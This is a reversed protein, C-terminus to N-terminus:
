LTTSLILLGAIIRYIIFIYTTHNRLYKLLFEISLYGVIASSIVAVLISTIGLTSIFQQLEILELLGSAAIAPISLLFSFKAADERKLGCFLAATITTGSRSSGPILAITQATGIILADKWTVNEISKNKKGFKEGFFLIIALVVLSIGIVTLDKTFGGEIFKKFALGIIVVPITGIIIYWGLKANQSGTSSKKLFFFGEKFFSKVIEFLEKWFYILVAILTGLQIVAILATWEEPKNNKILNLYEGAFTLHATSSIPIFETLGQIIGLILAEIFNM